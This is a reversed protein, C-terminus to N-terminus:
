GKLLDSGDTYGSAVPKCNEPMMRDWRTDGSSKTIYADQINGKDDLKVFVDTHQSGGRMAMATQMQALQGNEDLPTSDYMVPDVNPHACNPGSPTHWAIQETRWLAQLHQESQRVSELIEPFDFMAEARTAGPLLGDIMANNKTQADTATMSGDEAAVVLTRSMLAMKTLAFKKPQCTNGDPTWPLPGLVAMAADYETRANGSQKAAAADEAAKIDSSAKTLPAYVATCDPAPSPSAAALLLSFVAGIM